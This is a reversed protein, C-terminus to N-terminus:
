NDEEEEPPFYLKYLCKGSGACYAVQLDGKYELRTDTQTNVSIEPSPQFSPIWIYVPKLVDTHCPDTYLGKLTLSITKPFKDSYNEVVLGESVKRKYVIILETIDSDTITPLTLKGEGDIAFETASASTNMAFQQGTAGNSYYVAVKVSGEVYDTLTIDKAGVPVIEIKPMTVKASDSAIIVDSGSQAGLINVNLMANNATFTGSKSTYSKKILNGDKDKIEKSEATIDITADALQNLTYLLKTQDLSEAVGNVLREIALDGLKFKAM